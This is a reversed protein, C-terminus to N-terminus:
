ATAISAATGLDFRFDALRDFLGLLVFFLKGVATAHNVFLNIIAVSGAAANRLDAPFWARVEIFVSCLGFLVANGAFTDREM